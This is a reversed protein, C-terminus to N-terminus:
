CSMRRYRRRLREGKKGEKREKEKDGEEGVASRCASNKVSNNVILTSNNKALKQCPKAANKRRRWWNKRLAAGMCVTTFIM